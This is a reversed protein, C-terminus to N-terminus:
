LLLGNAVNWNWYTISNSFSLSLLCWFSSFGRVFVPILSTWPTPYEQHGKRMLQGYEYDFLSYWTDEPLYVNISTKGPEVVPAFLMSSGWLSQHGINHTEKDNPYEYFLPRVVTTGNTSALFHLSYLYPLYHYRFLIAKTSAAVVSSWVAPDQAITQRINHNRLAM